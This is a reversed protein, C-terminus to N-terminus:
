SIYEECEVEGEEAGSDESVPADADSDDSTDTNNAKLHNNIISRSQAINPKAKAGIVPM